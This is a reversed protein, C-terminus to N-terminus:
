NASRRVHKCVCCQLVSVAITVFICLATISSLLYIVIVYTHVQSQLDSTTANIQFGAQVIVPESLPGCGAITKACVAVSCTVASDNVTRFYYFYEETVEYLKLEISGSKVCSYILSYGIVFGRANTLTPQSWKLLIVYDSLIMKDIGHPPVVPVKQSLFFTSSVISESTGYQENMGNIIVQYPTG